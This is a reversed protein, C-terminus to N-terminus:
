PTGEIRRPARLSVPRVQTDRAPHGRPFPPLRWAELNGAHADHELAFLMHARGPHQQAEPDARPHWHHGTLERDAATIFADRQDEDQCVFVVTPPQTDDRFRTDRWWWCLLTDYRRFKDYNKDIRRTRDYEVLLTISRSTKGEEITLVADPRVLRPEPQALGEVSWDGHLLLQGHSGLAPPSFDTEGEWALATPALVRRLALVWANLQVEHLVHGYDYIARPKYRHDKPIHGAKRLLRHGEPGLHYTWPYTGRNARPRFRELYGARFLQLLRRQGPWQAGGSWWLDLLQPATLFKYRWVDHVIAVDRPRIACPTLGEREGRELVAGDYRHVEVYSPALM